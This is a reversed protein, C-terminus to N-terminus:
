KYAHTCTYQVHTYTHTICLIGNRYCHLHVTHTHATHTVFIRHVPQTCLLTHACTHVNMCMYVKHFCHSFSFGISTVALPVVGTRTHVLTHTHTHTCTHSSYPACAIEIVILYTCEHVHVHKTCLTCTYSHVRMHVCM